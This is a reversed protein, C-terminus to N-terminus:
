STAWAPRLSALYGFIVKLKQDEQRWGQIEPVIVCCECNILYFSKFRPSQALGVDLSRCEWCGM